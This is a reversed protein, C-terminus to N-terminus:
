WRERRGGGGGGRFGGGGRPAQERAENVVIPRGDLEAGNMEAVAQQTSSEDVFTVFGFGRSRGTERDSIVIAEEIEGFRSFAAQLGTSDTAWALSGVFLKKGM